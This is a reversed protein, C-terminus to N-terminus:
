IKFVQKITKYNSFITRKKKTKSTFISKEPVGFKAFFKKPILKYIYIKFKQWVWKQNYGFARETVNFTGKSDIYAIYNQSSLQDYPVKLEKSLELFSSPTFQVTFDATYKHERFLTKEKNNVDKYKQPEFLTFSEPQYTFDNIINMKKAECLWNLCDKEENSDVSLVVNHVDDLVEIQKRKNKGKIAM